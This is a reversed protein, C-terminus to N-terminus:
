KQYDQEGCDRIIRIAMAAIQICEKKVSYYNRNGQKRKVQEWLEDVEELLVAYGEHLSHFSPYKKIAIAVEEKIEDFIEDM